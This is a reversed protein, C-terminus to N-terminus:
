HGKIFKQQNICIGYFRLFTPFRLPFKNQTFIEDCFNVSSLISVIFKKWRNKVILKISNDIRDAALLKSLFYFNYFLSLINDFNDSRYVRTENERNEKEPYNAPEFVHIAPDQARIIIRAIYAPTPPSTTADYGRNVLVALTWHLFSQRRFVLDLGLIRVFYEAKGKVWCVDDRSLCFLCQVLLDFMSNYIVPFIQPM